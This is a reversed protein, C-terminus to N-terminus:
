QTYLMCVPTRFILVSKSYLSSKSLQVCWLAASCRSSSSGISSSRQDQHPLACVHCDHNFTDMCDSSLYLLTKIDIAETATSSSQQRSHNSQQRSSSRSKSITYFRICQNQKLGGQPRQQSWSNLCSLSPHLAPQLLHQLEAPLQQERYPTYM